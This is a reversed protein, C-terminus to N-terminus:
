LRIATRIKATRSRPNIKQETATAVVPKTTVQKWVEKKRFAVKVMRDELSHFTIIVARGGPQITQPLITDLMKQLHGLEDNVLIRLAQFIRTAPHKSSMKVVKAPMAQTVITVLQDATLLRKQKRQLVIAEAIKASFKEEGYEKFASELKQQSLTELLEWAPQGTTTDFRLDLSGTANFSFGRSDDALQDSSLGLDLLVRDVQELNFQKLVEPLESYSAQILHCNAPSNALKKEAFALMMADRDLGILTGTAEIQEAIKCSHGGAGMTGDVVCLGTHLDLMQLVERLLVPRHLPKGQRESHSM